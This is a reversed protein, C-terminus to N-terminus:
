PSLDYDLDLPHKPIDLKLTLLMFDAKIFNNSAYAHIIYESTTPVTGSAYKYWSFDNCAFKWHTTHTNSKFQM